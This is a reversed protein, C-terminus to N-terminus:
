FAPADGAWAAQLLTRIDARTVPQPNPYPTQTALDAARDLDREELGIERLALPANLSRAFEYLAQGADHAGLLDAIPQLEAAAARM